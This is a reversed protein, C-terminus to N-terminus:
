NEATCLVKAGLCVIAWAPVEHKVDVAFNAVKVLFKVSFCCSQGVVKKKQNVVSCLIDRATSLNCKLRMKLQWLILIVVFSVKHQKTWAREALRFPISELSTFVNLACCCLKWDGSSLWEVVTSMCWSRKKKRKRFRFPFQLCHFIWKVCFSTNLIIQIEGWFSLHAIRISFHDVVILSMWIRANRNRAVLGIARCLMCLRVFILHNEVISSNVFNNVSCLNDALWMAYIYKCPSLAVSDKGSVVWAPCWMM